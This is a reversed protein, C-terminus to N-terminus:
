AIASAERPSRERPNLRVRQREGTLEAPRYSPHGLKIREGTM